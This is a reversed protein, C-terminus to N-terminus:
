LAKFSYHKLFIILLGIGLGIFIGKVLDSLNFLHGFIYSTSISILGLIFLIIIKSRKM